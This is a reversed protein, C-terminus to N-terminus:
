AFRKDALGVLTYMDIHSAQIAEERIDHWLKMVSSANQAHQIKAEMRRLQQSTFYEKWEGVKAVRVVGYRRKDGQFGEKCTSQAGSPTRYWEPNVNERFDIVMIRRMYEPRSRELLKELRGQDHELAKGYREGLFYALRLVVERTDKQLQEYTVFFVNPQTRLAYGSTVHEFYDGHGLDGDLFADVFEEFTGSQFEYRSLNTAMHFFSVCVDWPNRAVYIYKGEETIADRSFSLHTLFPRLPLPSKWDQYNVYELARCNESFEDYTVIPEGGKLILQTIYQIWNTGSKPFTSQVVDGAEARFKPSRRLFYPNVGVCRPIGDVVQHAPRRRQM